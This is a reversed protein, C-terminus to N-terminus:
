KINRFTSKIITSYNQEIATAINNAKADITGTKSNIMITLESINDSTNQQLAELRDELTSTRTSLVILEDKAANTDTLNFVM